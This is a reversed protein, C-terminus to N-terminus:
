TTGFYEHQSLLSEKVEDINSEKEFEIFIHSNILLRPNTALKFVESYVKKKVEM